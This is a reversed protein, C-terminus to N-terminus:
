DDRFGTNYTDRLHREVVEWVLKHANESRMKYRIALANALSNSLFYLPYKNLEPLMKTWEGVLDDYSLFHTPHTTSQEPEPEVSYKRNYWLRALSAFESRYEPDQYVEEQLRNYDALISQVFEQDSLDHYRWDDPLKSEGTGNQQYDKKVLYLLLLYAKEQETDPLGSRMMVNRLGKGSLHRKLVECMHSDSDVGSQIIAADIDEEPLTIEYVLTYLDSFHWERMGEPLEMFRRVIEEESLVGQAYQYVAIEEALKMFAM